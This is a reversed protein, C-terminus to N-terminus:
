RLEDLPVSLADALKCATEMKPRSLGMILGWLSEYRIGIREALETRTLGRKKALAEVRLGWECPTKQRPRGGAHRETAAVM